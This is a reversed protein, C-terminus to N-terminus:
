SDVAERALRRLEAAPIAPLGRAADLLDRRVAPAFISEGAAVVRGDARFRCTCCTDCMDIKIRGSPSTYSYAPGPCYTARHHDSNRMASM